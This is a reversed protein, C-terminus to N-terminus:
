GAGSGQAGLRRFIVMAEELRTRAPAPEGIVPRPSPAKCSDPAGLRPSAKDPMSYAMSTRFDDRVMRINFPAIEGITQLSSLRAKVLARYLLLCDGSSASFSSLIM